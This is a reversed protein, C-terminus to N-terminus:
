SPKEKSILTKDGLGKIWFSIKGSTVDLCLYYCNTTPNTASTTCAADVDPEADGNGDVVIKGSYFPEAKIKSEVFFVNEQAEKWSNCVIPNYNEENPICIRITDYFLNQTLKDVFCVQKFKTPIQINKQKVTGYNLSVDEVADKLARKAEVLSIEEHAALFSKVAQYGYILVLSMIVLSLIYIFVKGVIQARM